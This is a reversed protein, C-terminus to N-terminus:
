PYPQSISISISDLILAAPQYQIMNMRICPDGPVISVRKPRRREDSLKLELEISEVEIM